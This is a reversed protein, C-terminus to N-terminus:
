NRAIIILILIIGKLPHLVCKYLAIWVDYRELNIIKSEYNIPHTFKRYPERPHYYIAGCPAHNMYRPFLPCPSRSGLPLRLFIRPADSTRANVLLNAADNDACTLPYSFPTLLSFIDASHLYSLFGRTM